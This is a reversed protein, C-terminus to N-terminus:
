NPPLGPILMWETFAYIRTLIKGGQESGDKQSAPSPNELWLAQLAALPAALGGVTGEQAQSQELTHPVKWSCKALAASSDQATM